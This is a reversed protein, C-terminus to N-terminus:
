LDSDMCTIITPPAVELESCPRYNGGYVYSKLIRTTCTTEEPGLVISLVLLRLLLSLYLLAKDHRTLRVLM